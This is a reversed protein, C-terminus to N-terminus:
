QSGRSDEEAELWLPHFHRAWPRSVRGILMALLSGPRGLVGMYLHVVGAALLVAGCYRHIEFLVDMGASGFVAAMSLMMSLLSGLGVTLVLWFFAKEAADFKGAPADAGGLKALWRCDHDAFRGAHAWVVAMCALSAGFVGGAMTHIMLWYGFIQRGLALRPVFGTVALTVFSVAVAWHILIQWLGYRRVTLEAKPLGRHRRRALVLHALCVAGAAALLIYTIANFM